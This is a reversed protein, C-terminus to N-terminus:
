TLSERLHWWPQHRPSFLKGADLFIFGVVLVSDSLPPVFCRLLPWLLVSSFFRSQERMDFRAGLVEERNPTLHDHFICSTISVFNTEGPLSEYQISKQASSWVLYYVTKSISDTRKKLCWNNIWRGQKFSCSQIRQM